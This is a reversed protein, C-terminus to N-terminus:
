QIFADLHRVDAVIVVTINGGEFPVPSAHLVIFIVVVTMHVVSFRASGSSPPGLAPFVGPHRHLKLFELQHSSFKKRKKVEKKKNKKTENKKKKEIKGGRKLGVVM